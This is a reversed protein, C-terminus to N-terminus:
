KKLFILKDDNKWFDCISRFDKECKWKTCWDIYWKYWDCNDCMRRTEWYYKEQKM